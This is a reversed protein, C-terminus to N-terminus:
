ATTRELADVGVHGRISYRPPRRVERVIVDLYSGVIGIALLNAGGLFVTALMVSLWGSPSEAGLVWRLLFIGGVAFAAIALFLGILSILTLPATSGSRFNLLVRRAGDRVTFGSSGHLREGHEVEVNRVRSSVRHLMPGVVPARTEHQVLADVVPRRMLRFATHRFGKPTGWAVRDALAHARSGLDRLAGRELPWNAVVADWEPHEAMAEILVVLESPRHELDDDMTAVLEGQAAALGCLTAMPQGHNHLLDIGRVRADEAALREIVAWTDDPSSDNVIVIEFTISRPQLVDALAGVLDPLSNGGRYSPIVISLDPHEPMM